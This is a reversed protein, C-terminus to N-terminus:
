SNEIIQAKWNKDPLVVKLLNVRTNRKSKYYSRNHDTKGCKFSKQYKFLCDKRFNLMGCGYCPNLKGANKNPNKEKPVVIKKRFMQVETVANQKIKRQIM